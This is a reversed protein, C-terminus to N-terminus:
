WLHFFKIRFHFTSLYNEQNASPIVDNLYLKLYIWWLNLTHGDVRGLGIVQRRRRCIKTVCVIILIAIFIVAAGGVAVGFLHELSYCSQEYIVLHIMDSNTSVKGQVIALVRVSTSDVAIFKHELCVVTCWARMMKTQVISCHDVAALAIKM